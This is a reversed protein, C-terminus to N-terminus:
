RFSEQRLLQYYRAKERDNLTEVLKEEPVVTFREAMALMGQTQRLKRFDDDYAKQLNYRRVSAETPKQPVKVNSSALFPTAFRGLPVYAGVVNRTLSRKLAVGAPQGSRAATVADLGAQVVPNGLNTVQEIDGAMGLQMLAATLQKISNGTRMFTYHTGNRNKNLLAYAGEMTDTATVKNLLGAWPGSIKGQEDRPIFIPEYDGALYGFRGKLAHDFLYRQSPLWKAQGQPADPLLSLPVDGLPTSLRAAGGRERDSLAQQQVFMGPRAAFAQIMQRSRNFTYPWFMTWSRMFDHFGSSIDRRYNVFSADVLRKAEQVSYGKERATIYTAVRPIDELVMGVHRNAQM